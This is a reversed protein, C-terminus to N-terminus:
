LLMKWDSARIRRGRVRYTPTEFYMFQWVKVSMQGIFDPHLQSRTIVIYQWQALGSTMAGDITGIYVWRSTPITYFPLEESAQM